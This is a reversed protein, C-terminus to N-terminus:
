PSNYVGDVVEGESESEGESKDEGQRQDEGDAGSGNEDEGQEKGEVRMNM